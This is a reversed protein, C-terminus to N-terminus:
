DLSLVALSWDDVRLLAGGVTAAQVQVTYPVGGPLGASTRQVAHSQKVAPDTPSDFAFDTGAAPNLEVLVAGPLVVVIRVSCWSGGLCTSEATYTAHFATTGSPNFTLAAGPVDTWTPSATQWPNSDGVSQFGGSEWVTRAPLPGAPGPGLAAPARAAPGPAASDLAASDPAASSPAAPGTRAAAAVGTLLASGAGVAAAVAILRKRQALM